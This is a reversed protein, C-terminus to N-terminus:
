KLGYAWVHLTGNEVYSIFIDEPPIGSLEHLQVNSNNRKKIEKIVKDLNVINTNKETFKLSILRSAENLSKKLEVIEKNQDKVLELLEKDQSKKLEVIEKSQKKLLEIIEDNQSLIKLGRTESNM